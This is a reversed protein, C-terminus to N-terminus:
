FMDNNGGGGGGPDGSVYSHVFIQKSVNYNIGNYRLVAACTLTSGFINYAGFQYSGNTYSTNNTITVTQSTTNTLTYASSGVSWSFSIPTVKPHFLATVTTQNSGPSGISDARIATKDFWLNPTNFLASEGGTTTVNIRMVYAARSGYPNDDTRIIGWWGNQATPQQHVYVGGRGSSGEANITVSSYLEPQSLGQLNSNSFSFSNFNFDSWHTWWRSGMSLLNLGWYIERDVSDFYISIAHQNTYIPASFASEKGYFTDFGTQAGATLGATLSALTFIDHPATDRYEAAIETLSIQGSTKITM